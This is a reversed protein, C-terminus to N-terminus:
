SPIHESAVRIIPAEGDSALTANAEASTLAAHLADYGAQGGVGRHDAVTVHEDGWVPLGDEFTVTEVIEGDQTFACASQSTTGLDFMLVVTPQAHTIAM